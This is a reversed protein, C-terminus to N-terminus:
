RGADRGKQLVVKKMGHNAIRFLSLIEGKSELDKLFKRWYNQNELIVSVLSFWQMYDM